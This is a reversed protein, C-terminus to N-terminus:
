WGYNGKVTQGAVSYFPQVRADMEQYPVPWNIATGEPLDGWGRSDLFGCLYACSFMTELRKEWKMAELITGCDVTSFAPAQPVKPVCANGGAIKQSASTITGISPLGHKARAADILVSAAAFNGARIQGEAVLMDAEAKAINTWTGNGSNLNVAM